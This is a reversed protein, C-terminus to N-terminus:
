PHVTEQWEQYGQAPVTLCPGAVCEEELVLQERAVQGVGRDLVEDGLEKLPVGAVGGVQSPFHVTGRRSHEKITNDSYGM